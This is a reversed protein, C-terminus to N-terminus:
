RRRTMRSKKGGDHSILGFKAILSFKLAPLKKGDETDEAKVSKLSAAFEHSPPKPPEEKFQVDVTNFTPDVYLVKFGSKKVHSRVERTIKDELKETDYGKEELFNTYENLAVKKESGNVPKISWVVGMARVVGKAKETKKSM